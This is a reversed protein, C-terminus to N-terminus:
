IEMREIREVWHGASLRGATFEAVVKFVDDSFGGVNLIDEREIAQTTRYPQIDICVLRANPIRQKYIEWEKMTATGRGGAKADVWSEMDSVLVVVECDAKRENLRALPASCNTGGGGVAALRQANTMVSDRPNLSVKVVREEFPLVVANKNARLFAAATLAAVDICRVKSTAGKRHGTAASSMSGSVDPCIAVGGKVKPVNEIALEMADQLADVVIRPIGDNAARYASLLQFPFVRAKAIEKPDKLRSAITEAMGKTEFVGHRAFTALNMRTMQWSANRAIATWEVRGLELATLMEFPVDPLTSGKAIKWREFDKVVKPLADADVEKGILYGYLAERAKEKPKPHVMKIVDALSPAQGVSARFIATEDRDAFWRKVLTKPVTGLSKRGVAGSRVIQVFNRLMKGNDIVRPFIKKLLDPASISLVACLLAPADKMFAEQRAYLATKATFEPEALYALKLVKWLQAEASAYFTSSFCGTAVYQALTHEPSLLYAPALAENWGDTEPALKGRSATFLQKNAM